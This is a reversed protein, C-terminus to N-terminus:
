SSPAPCYIGLGISFACLANFNGSAGSFKVSIPTEKLKDLQLALRRAFIVLEKGLTTPSAAQGHTRALMSQEQYQEALDLVREVVGVMTPIYAEKFFNDLLLAYATNNVDESTLNIHVIEELDQLDAFEESGQLVAEKIKKKIFYECSKVDHNTAQGNNIGEVGKKEIAKVLKADETSFNEYLGRLFEEETYTLSRIIGQESLEILYDVEVQVRYKFLAKESGFDSLSVKNPGLNRTSGAYRGDLPSVANLEFDLVRDEFALNKEELEKIRAELEQISLTEAM